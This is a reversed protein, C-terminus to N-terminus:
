NPNNWYGPSVHQVKVSLEGAPNSSMGVSVEPLPTGWMGPRRDDHKNSLNMGTKTM